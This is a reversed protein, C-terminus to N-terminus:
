RGIQERRNQEAQQQKDERRKSQPIEFEAPEPQELGNRSFLPVISDRHKIKAAQGAPWLAKAM